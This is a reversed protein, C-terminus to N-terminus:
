SLNDSQALKIARSLTMNGLVQIKQQSNVVFTKDENETIVYIQTIIKQVFVKKNGDKVPKKPKIAEIEPAKEGDDPLSASMENIANRWFEEPDTAM